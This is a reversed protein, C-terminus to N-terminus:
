EDLIEDGQLNGTEKVIYLEREKSLDIEIIEELNGKKKFELGYVKARNYIDPKLPIEKVVAQKGDSLLVCAGPEFPPTISKFANLIDPDYVNDYGAKEELEKLAESTTYVPKLNKNQRWKRYSIMSHYSDVIRLMRASYPIYLDRLNDPNPYGGCSESEHFLASEGNMNHHHYKISDELIRGVASRMGSGPNYKYIFINLNRRVFDLSKQPHAFLAEFQNPLTLVNGTGMGVSDRM